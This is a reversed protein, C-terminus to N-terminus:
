GACRRRSVLAITCRCLRCVGLGHLHALSDARGRSYSAAHCGNQHQMVDEASQLETFTVCFVVRSWQQTYSRDISNPVAAPGHSQPVWDLTQGASGPAPPPQPLRRRAAPPAASPTTCHRSQSPCAGHAASFVAAICCLPLLQTIHQIPSNSTRSLAPQRSPSASCNM